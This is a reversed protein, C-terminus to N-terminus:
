SSDKDLNLYKREKAKVLTYLTSNYIVPLDFNKGRAIVAGNICEIETRKKNLVDQLMSSKNGATDKAVRVTNELLDGIPIKAERKAIKETERCVSKLLAYTREDDLVEGNKMGTLATIPNISANIIVKKWIHGYINGSVKTEIGASNLIEAIGEIEEGNGESTQRDPYPGLISEGKGQHKVVGPEQYTVGQSTIGGLVRSPDAFKSIIEENKLGNQFSLIWTDKSLYEHIDEMAKRTDYSKTCLILCDRDALDSPDSSYRVPTRLETKGRIIVEEIAMDRKGLLLVENDIGLSGAFFIGMAGPGVIGFNM